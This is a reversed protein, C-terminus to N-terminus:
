NDYLWKELYMKFTSEVHGIVVNNNQSWIDRRATTKACDISALHETSFSSSTPAAGVPSGKVVYSHDVIGNGVLTLEIDFTQPYYFDLSLIIKILVYSWWLQYMM